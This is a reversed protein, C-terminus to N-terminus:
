RKAGVADVAFGGARVDVIVATEHLRLSGLVVAPGFDQDEIVPLGIATALEKAVRVGEGGSTDCLLSVRLTYAYRWDM